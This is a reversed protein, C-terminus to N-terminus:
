SSIHKLGSSSGVLFHNPTIVEDTEDDVPVYSLPLPNIINEVEIMISVLLGDSPAASVMIKYLVNKVSRVLRKWAGGMQPSVPPTLNWKM